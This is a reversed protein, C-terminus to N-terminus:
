RVTPHYQKILVLNYKRIGYQGTAYDLSFSKIDWTSDVPFEPITSADVTLLVDPYIYNIMNSIESSSVVYGSITTSETYGLAIYNPVFGTDISTKTAASIQEVVRIPVLQNKSKINKALNEIYLVMDTGGNDFSFTIPM